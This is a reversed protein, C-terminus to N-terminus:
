ITHAVASKQSALLDIESKVQNKGTEKALYMAQDARMIVDDQAEDVNFLAVGASFTILLRQNNGSFFRETLVQQLREITRVAYDLSTNPLLIVFEEGGFRAPIDTARLTEQMVKALHLLAADGVSHGYQDNFVKFNDVDILAVCLDLGERHARSVERVMAEDLGRRNLLGTLPDESVKESLQSLEEQLKSIKQQTAEFQERQAM